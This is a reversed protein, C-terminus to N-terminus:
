DMDKGLIKKVKPLGVVKLPSVSNRGKGVQHGAAARSQQDGGRQYLRARSTDPRVPKDRLSDLVEFKARFNEMRSDVKMMEEEKDVITNDCYIEERRKEGWKLYNTLISDGIPYLPYFLQVVTLILPAVVFEIFGMQFNPLNIGFRYHYYFPHYYYHYYYHHCLTLPHYRSLSLSVCACM